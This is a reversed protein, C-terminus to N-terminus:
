SFNPSAAGATRLAVRSTVDASHLDRVRRAFPSRVLTCVDSCSSKWGHSRLLLYLPLLIFVYLLEYIGVDWGVRLLTHVRKRALNM